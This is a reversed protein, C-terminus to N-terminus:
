VVVINVWKSATKNGSPATLIAKALAKGADFGFGGVTVAVSRSKGDCVVIQPGSGTGVPYPTEPPYQNLTVIVSGSGGSCRVNLGVDITTGVFDYDARSNITVESGSGSGGSAGASSIGFPLAAAIVGALVLLRIRKVVNRWEFPISWESASAVREIWAL